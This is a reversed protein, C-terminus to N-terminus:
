IREGHPRVPWKLLYTMRLVGEVPTGETIIVSGALSSSHTQQISITPPATDCFATYIPARSDSECDQLLCSAHPGRCLSTQELSDLSEAGESWCLLQHDPGLPQAERLRLTFGLHTEPLNHGTYIVSLM